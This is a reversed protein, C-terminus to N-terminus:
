IVRRCEMMMVLVEEREQDITFVERQRGVEAEGRVSRQEGPHAREGLHGQTYIETHAEHGKDSQLTKGKPTMRLTKNM